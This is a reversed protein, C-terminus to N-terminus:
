VETLAMIEAEIQRASDQKALLEAAAANMKKNPSIFLTPAVIVLSEADVLRPFGPALASSKQRSFPFPLQPPCSRPIMLTTTIRAARCKEAPNM